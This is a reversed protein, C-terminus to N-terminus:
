KKLYGLAILFKEDHIEDVNLKYPSKRNGEVLVKFKEMVYQLLNKKEAQQLDTISGM